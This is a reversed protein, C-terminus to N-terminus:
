NIFYGLVIEDCCMQQCNNRKNFLCESQRACRMFGHPQPRPWSGYWVMGYLVIVLGALVCCFLVVSLKRSPLRFIHLHIALPAFLCCLIRKECTILLIHTHQLTHTHAPRLQMWCAVCWIDLKWFPLQRFVFVNWFNANFLVCYM